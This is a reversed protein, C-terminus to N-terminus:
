HVHRQLKGGCLGSKPFQIRVQRDVLVPDPLAAVQAHHRAHTVRRDVQVASAALNLHEHEEHMRADEAHGRHQTKGKARGEGSGAGRGWGRVVRQRVQIPRASSADVSLGQVPAAFKNPHWSPPASSFWAQSQLRQVLAWLHPTASLFRARQQSMRTQLRM